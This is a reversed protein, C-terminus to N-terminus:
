SINLKKKGGAKQNKVKNIINSKLIIKVNIHFIITLILTTNVKKLMIIGLCKTILNISNLMVKKGDILLYIKLEILIKNKLMKLKQM